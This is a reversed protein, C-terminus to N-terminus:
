VIVPLDVNQLHHLWKMNDRIDSPDEKNGNLKGSVQEHRRPLGDSPVSLPNRKIQNKYLLKLKFELLDYTKM